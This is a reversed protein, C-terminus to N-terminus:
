FPHSYPCKELIQNHFPYSKRPKILSLKELSNWCCRHRIKLGIHVYLKGQPGYVTSENEVTLPDEKNQADLSDKKKSELGVMHELFYWVMM